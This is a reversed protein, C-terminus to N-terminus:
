CNQVEFRSNWDAIGDHGIPGGVRVQDCHHFDGPGYLGPYEYRSFRTGGSGVGSPQATMHNLVADAYVAVGAAHCARVMAAFATRDGRRSVLRYSVPQYDQWWPYGPLVVHEQPPSVQVAGFGATGLRSTC